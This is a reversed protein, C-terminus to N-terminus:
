FARKVNFRWQWNASTAGGVAGTSQNVLVPTSTGSNAGVTLRGRRLLMPGYGTGNTAGWETAIDGPTMSAETTLLQAEFKPAILDTGINHNKSVATNSPLAVTWAGIYQGQLAYAIASTVAAGSTIAEGVYVRQVAAFTPNSAAAVSAAGGVLTKMTMNATDLWDSAYGAATISPAAVPAVYATGAPHQCYPLLEFKDIYGNLFNTANGGNAGLYLATIGCVKLASATTSEQAGNVYLRYIGAAADYTLEVFYWTGVIPTTTGQVASAIDHAAGTSSLYYTFKITGANNFIGLNVGFTGAGNIAAALTAFGTAAPLASPNIWGRLAWGGGGLSTFNTSKVFDAVGNLANAAGAGGLAGTGFKVQTAQVKAGGQATWTSGFDDLFVTSNVAGGFQLVSQRTRDYAVGYQPPAMTNTFTLAGSGANRDVSLFSTNSAPCTWCNAQDAVFRGVVDVAGSAGWGLAFAIVVASATALLSPQLGAGITIFNAAGTADVSGALVTQRVPVEIATTAATTPDAQLNAGLPNEGVTSRGLAALNREDTLNGAVITVQGVALAVRAVPAKGVPIAPAVPAVNEAGAVVTLIGTFRDIVIRDIRPNVIPAVFAATLQQAVATLTTGDFIGGAALAVVMGGNPSALFAGSNLASAAAATASGAAATASAAAGTASGAAATASAAAATASAGAANASIYFLMKSANVHDAAWVGSLHLGVIEYIDALNTGNAGDRVTDSPFYVTNTAWDGRFSGTPFIIGTVHSTVNLGAVAAIIPVGCYVPFPFKGASDLIQPNAAGTVGLQDNFLPALVTTPLGTAPDVTFFSVSSGAYIPNAISFDLIDTLIAM